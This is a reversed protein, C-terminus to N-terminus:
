KQKEIVALIASPAYDENLALFTKRNVEKVQGVSLNVKGGEALAVDNALTNLNVKKQKDAM